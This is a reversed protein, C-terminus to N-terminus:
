GRGGGSGGCRLCVCWLVVGGDGDGGDVVYMRVQSQPSSVDKVQADPISLASVTLAVGLRDKPLTSSFSHASAVSVTGTFGPEAMAPATPANSSPRLLAASAARGMAAHQDGTSSLFGPAPLPFAHQHSPHNLPPPPPPALCTVLTNNLTLSSLPGLDKEMWLLGHMYAFLHADLRPSGPSPHCILAGPVVAIAVAILFFTCTDACACAGAVPV